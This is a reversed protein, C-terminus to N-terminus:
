SDPLGPRAPAGLVATYVRNVQRTFSAWDSPATAAERVCAVPGAREAWELSALAARAFGEPTHEFLWVGRQDRFPEHAACRSALIPKASRLYDFMKLPANAGLARPSVLAEALASYAPMTSRPRREVVRLADCGGLRARARLRACEEPTGGVLVLVAGARRELIRPMAQILVELGQYAAFSGTYVLAQAAAPLELRARLEGVSEELALPDPAPFAWEEMRCGPAVRRVHPGLGRSCVVFEARRLLRRELARLGAGAARFLAYDHLQEPISSAMDYLLPVRGRRCPGSALYAAEEVAHVCAYDGAALRRELEIRLLVDFCLKRWSFGIPVRRIHLPNALRLIRLGPLAVDEGIPLALLDVQHGLEALARLVYRVAIPTGRDEYFPQPAVVLM